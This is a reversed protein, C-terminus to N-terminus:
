SSGYQKGEISYNINGDIIYLPDGKQINEGVRM